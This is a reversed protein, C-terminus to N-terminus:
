GIPRVLLLGCGFAKAHGVGQALAACFAGPEAVPPEGAFDVRSFQIERGQASTAARLSM